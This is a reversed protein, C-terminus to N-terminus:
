GVEFLKPWCKGTVFLRDTAADYAIGNLVDTGANHEAAPLLGTFDIVGVVAGSSPDIRVVQDTQWVNAFIEGKIYELENLNKVPRGQDTVDISRQVEFSLPDLFRLRSTGDSLILSHGDTALGWGEGQYTFEKLKRFSALDYVFGKQNTWTLQFLRNNLLALGEAFYQQPVVTQQLVTGNTLDVRRLSSEGYLGTSELLVGDLYVLGQTFARPDHPWAHIVEYTYNTVKPSAAASAAPAATGAPPVSTSGPQNRDCGALLLFALVAAVASLRRLAPNLGAADCTHAGGVGGERWPGRFECTARGNSARGPPVRRHPLTCGQAIPSGSLRLPRFPNWRMGHNATDRGIIQPKVACHSM